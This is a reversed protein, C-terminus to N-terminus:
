ELVSRTDLAAPARGGHAGRRGAEHEAVLADAQRHARRSWRRTPNVSVVFGAVRALMAAEDGPDPPMLDLFNSRAAIVFASPPLDPALALARAVTAQWGPVVLLRCRRPARAVARLVRALKRRARM